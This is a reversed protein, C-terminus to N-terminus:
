AQDGEKERLGFLDFLLYLIMLAGSVPLVVYVYGMPLQMAATRQRMGLEILSQGTVVMVVALALMALYGIWRVPKQIAPPMVKVLSDLAVHANSRVGLAAGLFTIWIFLYRGLEESWSLSDEFVYRFVVQAFIVIVMVAALVVCLFYVARTISAEVRGLVGNMGGIYPQPLGLLMEAPAAQM